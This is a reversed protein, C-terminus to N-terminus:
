KIKYKKNIKKFSKKATDTKFIHWSYLNNFSFWVDKIGLNDTVGADDTTPFNFLHEYFKGYTSNLHHWKGDIDSYVYVTSHGGYNTDGCVVRVKHPPMGASIYFSAQLNAWSDCDFGQSKTIKKKELIEFPFEWLESVGYVKQDHAYKYYKKYIYNYIEPIDIEPVVIELKNKKIEEKIHFDQPTILLRVDIPIIEKQTGFIRGKYEINVKPYKNDLIYKIEEQEKKEELLEKLDENRDQLQLIQEDKHKYILNYFFKFLM